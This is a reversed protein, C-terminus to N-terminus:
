SENEPNTPRPELGSVLLSPKLGAASMTFLLPLTPNLRPNRSPDPPLRLHPEREFPVEGGLAHDHGLGNFSSASIMKRPRKGSVTIAARFYGRIHM